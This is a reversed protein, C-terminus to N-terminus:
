VVFPRLLYIGLVFDLVTFGIVSTYIMHHGRLGRREATWRVTLNQEKMDSPLLREALEDVITANVMHDAYDRKVLFFLFLTLVGGIILLLGAFLPNEWISNLAYGGALIGAEVAHIIQVRSWILQDQHIRHQVLSQYLCCLRNDTQNTSNAM